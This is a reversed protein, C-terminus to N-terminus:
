LDIFYKIYVVDVYTVNKDMIISTDVWVMFHSRLAHTRHYVVQADDGEVEELTM